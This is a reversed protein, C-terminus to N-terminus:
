ITHLPQRAFSPKSLFELLWDCGAARIVPIQQATLRRGECRPQRVEGCKTAPANIKNRFVGDGTHRHRPVNCYTANLENASVACRMRKPNKPAGYLVSLPEPEHQAQHADGDGKKIM